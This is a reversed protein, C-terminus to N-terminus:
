LLKDIQERNLFKPINQWQKPAPLRATPDASIKGESALFRYFNRLTALHRAVSRSSLGTEYLSDLYRRLDEVGPIDNEIKPFESFAKLDRSYAELTNIALGKEVRCHDLFSRIEGCLVPRSGAESTERVPSIICYECIQKFCLSHPLNLNGAGTM